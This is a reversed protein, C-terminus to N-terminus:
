GPRSIPRTGHKQKCFCPKDPHDALFSEDVVLGPIQSIVPLIGEEENRM